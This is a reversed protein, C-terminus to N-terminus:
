AGEKRIIQYIRQIENEHRFTVKVQQGSFVEVKDIMAIVIRRNLSELKGNERFKEVWSVDLKRKEIEEQKEAELRIVTNEAEKADAEYDAKLERYENETLLGDKYDQYCGKALELFRLKQEIARAIQI